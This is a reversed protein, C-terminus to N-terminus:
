TTSRSPWALGSVCPSSCSAAASKAADTCIDTRWDTPPGGAAALIKPDPRLPEAQFPRSPYGGPSQRRSAALLKEAELWQAEAQFPRLPYGGPSQRRPGAPLKEAELWRSQRFRDCRIGARRSSAPGQWRRGRRLTAEARSSFPQELAGNRGFKPRSRAPPFHSNPDHAADARPEVSKETGQRRPSCCGQM